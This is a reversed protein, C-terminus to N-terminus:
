SNQRRPLAPQARVDSQAAPAGLLEQEAEFWDRRDDGDPCGRAEWKEYARRAILASRDSDTTSAAVQLETGNGEHKSKM